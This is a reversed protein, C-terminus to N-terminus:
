RPHRHLMTKTKRHAWAARINHSKYEEPAQPEDGQAGGGSRLVKVYGLSILLNLVTKMPYNLVM